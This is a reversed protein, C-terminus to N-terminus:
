LKRNGSGMLAKQALSGHQGGGTPEVRTRELDLFIQSAPESNRDHLEQLDPSSVDVNHWSKPKATKQNPQGGLPRPHCDRIAFYICAPKFDFSSTDHVPPPSDALATLRFNPRHLPMTHPTVM